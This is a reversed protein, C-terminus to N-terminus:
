AHSMEGANAVLQHDADGRRKTKGLGFFRPGSWRTGTIERAIRSLSRWRKGHWEFGDELVLVTITEGQWERVLKAGQRLRVARSRVLDGGDSMITALEALRRSTGAGLGGLVQEQLKWAVGLLLLERGIRSPPRARYLRRWETRLREADMQAVAALKAHLEAPSKAAKRLAGGAPTPQTPRAVERLSAQERRHGLAATAGHAQSPEIDSEISRGTAPSSFGV